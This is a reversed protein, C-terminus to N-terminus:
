VNLFNHEGAAAIELARVAFEQGVLDALDPVDDASGGGSAPRRSAAAAVSRLAAVLETVTRPAKARASPLRTAEALNDPLMILLANGIAGVHRALTLVGRVARLKGDLGLAGM